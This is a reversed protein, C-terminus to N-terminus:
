IAVEEGDGRYKRSCLGEEMLGGGIVTSVLAFALLLAGKVVRALVLSRGRAAKARGLLGRRLAGRM